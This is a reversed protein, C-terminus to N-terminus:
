FFRWHFKSFTNVFQLCWHIASNVLEKLLKEVSQPRRWSPRCRSWSRAWRRVIFSSSMEVPDFSCSGFDYVVKLTAYCLNVRNLARQNTLLLRTVQVMWDAHWIESIIPYYLSTWVINRIQSLCNCQLYNSNKWNNAVCGIGRQSM